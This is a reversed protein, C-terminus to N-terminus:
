FSGEAPLTHLPAPMQSGPPRKGTVATYVFELSRVSYEADLGLDEQVRKIGALLEEPTREFDKRCVMAWEVNFEMTGRPVFIMAPFSYAGTGWEEQLDQLKKTAAHTTPLKDNNLMHRPKLPAFLIHINKWLGKDEERLDIVFERPVNSRRMHHEIRQMMGAALRVSELNGGM